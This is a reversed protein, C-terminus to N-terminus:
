PGSGRKRLAEPFGARALLEDIEDETSELRRAAQFLPGTEVPHWRTRGAEFWGGVNVPGVTKQIREFFAAGAAIGPQLSAEQLLSASAPGFEPHGRLLFGPALHPRGLRRATESFSAAAFYLMLLRSFEEPRGYHSQLAGIMRGAALLDRDTELAFVALEERDPFGPKALLTALREIGLLTLTFGSSLLPDVFGTASPLLAWRVGPVIRSHFPMRPLHTFERIARAEKFQRAVAPLRQLIRDWAPAGDSLRLEAALDPLVSVGASTIGNNFRLVWMWGGPFVHHLAADDPAFPIGPESPTLEDWRRVGTFHSFLAQSPAVCPIEAEQFGLQKHLFGRPGSADIVFRAEFSLPKGQRTGSLRVTPGSFDVSGLEVNDHYEVGTAVAERQFFHDVDPRYWHTDAIADTPSAAVLLERLPRPEAGGEEDFQHHLFTFGRKLGAALERHERQWSGWKCLAPLRPLQHRVSLSELLLNSLPTTSEGIAFRPHHGREILVVSRGLRRAIM